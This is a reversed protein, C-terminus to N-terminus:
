RFVAHGSLTSIIDRTSFHVLMWLTDETTAYSMGYVEFTHVM